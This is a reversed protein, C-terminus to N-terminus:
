AALVALESACVALVVGTVLQEENSVRTEKLAVDADLLVDLARDAEAKKWNPAAKTWASAASGWPRGTFAGTKKLLEFYEKALASRSVGEDLRAQGWAIALMQTSLAMVVSVGTTKPQSLVLSVLSLARKVGKDAIADLFDTITEGPTIGVVAAVAAEDVVKGNAFSALKDLETSLQYLDSGVSSQLLEVAGDTIELGHATSATHAIWKPLREGSLEEFKLVATSRSIAEDPKAAAPVVLMLLIDAAPRKLYTDLARRADKKLGQADRIVIVRREAMMPPTSLLTSLEEGGLEAGRRAELNFDRTAPDLAALQLQKVADEKQYDDDGIVYYVPEFVGRKIAERVTQLAARSM